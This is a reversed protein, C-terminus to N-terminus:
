GERVEVPSGQAHRAHQCPNATPCLVLHLSPRLINRRTQFLVDSGGSCFNEKEAELARVRAMLSPTDLEALAYVTIARDEASFDCFRTQPGVLLYDANLVQGLDSNRSVLLNLVSLGLPVSAPKRM